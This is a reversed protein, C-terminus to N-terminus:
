HNVIAGNTPRGQPGTSRPGRGSAHVPTKPRGAWTQRTGPSPRDATESVEDAFENDEIRDV